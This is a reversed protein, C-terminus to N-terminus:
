ELGLGIGVLGRARELYLVVPGSDLRERAAAARDIEDTIIGDVGRALYDRQDALDNVTWVYLDRGKADAEVLMGDHYSWDEIVVAGGAPTAPLDGIQFGVVYATTRNPARHAIDRVLERDLSQIMHTDDPDLRDMEAAVRRALGPQEEGHPKVEVLLRVGLRDAERVFEALTPISATRGDQRLTLSRVQSQTLEHVDADSDTLRGLGVDHMVVFGGDGTEQIDTEVMDAGAHAAARLGPVSNEVARAPYGRHGIIEPSAEAALVAADAAAFVKPMALFGALVVVMVSAVRTGRAVRGAAAVEVSQHQLLRVYAVFFFALFAAAFGVVLFRALDLLGLTAGAVTHTGALAVPVLGVGVLLALVLSAVLVVSLMVAGFGLLPRWSTLRLSGRLSQVISDDGGSVIAPFLLFRLMAYVVVAMVVGYVLGGSTTKLLEGSIFKPLAVHETLVSSFGVQSIPLLIALHPVLLLGQWGAAKRVTTSSRRLVSAFTVAEGELALHGIVAFLTVDALVFVTTVVVVVVLVLLAVPSAIVADLSYMNVGGIGLGHLTGRVLAALLPMTWVFAGQVCMMAILVAVYRARLLAVATRLARRLTARTGQTKETTRM